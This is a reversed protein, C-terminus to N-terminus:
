RVELTIKIGYPRISLTDKYAQPQDFFERTLAIVQDMDRKSLGHGTLYFFGPSCCAAHLAAACARQADTPQELDITPTMWSSVDIIPLIDM